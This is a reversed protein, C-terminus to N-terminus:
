NKMKDREIANEKNKPFLIKKNDPNLSAYRNEREFIEDYKDFNSVSDKSLEKTEPNYRFLPFYGSETVLKEEKISNKMGNKIGHAICPAYAIVISPGNYNNAEVLAKITQNYNAGLSITAVYVNPYTLVMQALDKKATKKGDSAFKAVAGMRTSKSAQGGTNSYVETDLVLINVNENSALVHDIGGYGIDYAWGDGGVIWISKKKIYKKYPVIEKFDDYDLNDYVEKSVEYSSDNLYKDVLKKNHSSLDKKNSMIDRVKKNMIDESERIGFGFEANDEFLSNSWPVTYPTSPISAGYISSCGTANAIMLNDGFLQTLLRLYPTEGCGACAGHFSFKSKVFQSGKVTEKSMVHKESVTDLFEQKKMEKKANDESAVMTIAKTPCVSACLGCGTCDLPSISITFKLNHDKIKADKLDGLVEKNVKKEEDSDLLYPRIVAHPCVFSCMNCMICKDKDYCPIINSLGRKEYKSSGGKFIGDEKDKFMSVPIENGKGHELLSFMNNEVEESVLDTDLGEVVIENVINFADELANLNDNVVDKGKRTFNKVIMDKIEKNIEDKTLLKTINLIVAEMIMSIKNPINNERAIKSANVVYFKIKKEKLVRLLNLPLIENLKTIECETNLIFIGNEKIGSLLDYRRLYTDKACVVVSPNTVYYSSRIPHDAFRLHCKTVGGSKKSDYEFYGQIYNNEKKGIITLIDKSTTVMGDSGYGYILMEKCNTDFVEKTRELSLHTVDDIIGVTFSHLNDGDLYKYIASIDNPTTDKSSLGYRGGIVDIDLNANKIVECVDLYLPEGNAAPDKARDLVAIKKVTKPLVNLLYKSSFPRYLHVEILGIDGKIFDITEKITECVSGMAVIVKTANKSGYYNFPKYDKNTIKNIELLYNNVIDPLKDYYSNRAEVAQFYVQDGQNTGRTTPNDIDFARKRFEDLADYDILKKVKDFDIVDIKNYEHSTRFGDFFNVFPVRGKIASLYPVSTLDMVQQVSSSAFIAFGTPRVAYIDSHDGMISLAHTAVTRAAVNIVCPLLEGAIKYMNPIMLLLGQSATYTTALVGNQLAGHVTAIAGAESQMEIVKVQEGYFNPKKSSAFVDVMEAMASAPTIPYIGFLSAFNYSVYACAKNGDMIEKNM